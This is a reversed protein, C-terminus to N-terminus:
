WPARPPSTATCSRWAAAPRCRRARDPVVVEQGPSEHADTPSRAWRAGTSTARAPTCSTPAQDARPTMSPSAARRSSTRRWSGAARPDPERRDPHARRDLRLRRDDARHGDGLRDGAPAARANTSGGSAAVGAIANEIADRTIIQSPRVDDRVLRMVLEGPRSRPPRRARTCHGPRREAGGPQHGAPRPGDVHHQRHVPGRLRRRGPLRRERPRPGGGARGQGGRARGVVEFVDQITM